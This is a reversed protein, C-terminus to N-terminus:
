SPFKCIPVQVHITLQNSLTRITYAGKLPHSFMPSQSIAGGISIVPLTNGLAVDALYRKIIVAQRWGLYQRMIVLRSNFAEGLVEAGIM